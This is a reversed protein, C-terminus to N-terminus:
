KIGVINLGLIARFLITRAIKKSLFYPLIPLLKECIFILLLPLKIYIGQGGFYYIIKSFGAEQFLKSLELFTYEKLHFGTAEKNFYRSVDHPGSLKNPTMCIYKGGAKLSKYINSLQDIGDEPHLHEMLQNSYAIDISERPVPVGSSDSIILEFNEPVIKNKTIEKSIDIAIVKKVIKSVAFSFNCDGPGVELFITDPTLYRQVLKMKQANKEKQYEKDDKQKIQPQNPVKRYFEDYLETYLHRREERSEASRLKNALEKEIEYHEKIEKESRNKEGYVSKM